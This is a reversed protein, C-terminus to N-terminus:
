FSAPTDRGPMFSCGASVSQTHSGTSKVKGRRPGGWERFCLKAVKPPQTGWSKVRINDHYFGTIQDNSMLSEGSQKFKPNEPKM